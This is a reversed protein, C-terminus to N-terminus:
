NSRLILIKFCSDQELPIPLGNSWSIGPDSKLKCLGFISGKCNARRSTRVQEPNASKRKGM